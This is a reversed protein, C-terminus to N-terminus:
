LFYVLFSLSHLELSSICGWSHGFFTEEDEDGCDSERSNIWLRIKVDKGREESSDYQDWKEKDEEIEVDERVKVRKEELSVRFSAMEQSYHSHATLSHFVSPTSEVPELSAMREQKWQRQERGGETVTEGLDLEWPVSLSHFPFCLSLLSSSLPHFNM